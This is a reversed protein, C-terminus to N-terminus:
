PHQLTYKSEDIYTKQLKQMRKNTSEQHYYSHHSPLEPNYPSDDPTYEKLMNSNVYFKSRIVNSHTYRIGSKVLLVGHPVEVCHVILDGAKPKYKLFYEPYSIEGGEYDDNLYIIFALPNLLIQKKEGSFDEKVLMDLFPNMHNTFDIHVRQGVGSERIQVESMDEIFIKEGYFLSKFRDEYEALKPIKVCHQFKTDKTINHIEDIIEKLEDQSLFNRFIFAEDHLKEFKNSLKINMHESLISM